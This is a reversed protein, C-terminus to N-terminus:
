CLYQTRARKRAVTSMYVRLKYKTLVNYAEYTHERLDYRSRAYAQPTRRDGDLFVTYKVRLMLITGSARGTVGADPTLKTPVLSALSTHM